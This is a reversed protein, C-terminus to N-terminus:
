QWCEGFWGCGFVLSVCIFLDDEHSACDVTFVVRSSSSSAGKWVCRIPAWSVTIYHLGFPPMWSGWIPRRKVLMASALHEVCDFFHFVRLTSKLSTHSSTPPTAAPQYPLKVDPAKDYVLHVYPNNHRSSLSDVLVRAPFIASIACLPKECYVCLRSPGYFSSSQTKRWYIFSWIPKGCQLPLWFNFQTVFHKLQVCLTAIYQTSNDPIKKALWVHSCFFIM